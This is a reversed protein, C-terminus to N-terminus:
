KDRYVLKGALRRLLEGEPGFKNVCSLAERYLDEARKEAGEVGALLPYTAKGRVQDAGTSKGLQAADGRLDLLDDTIQFALGLARAYESLQEMRTSDAGGVIGGMRVAARLLAATKGKYMAEIEELSLQRGEAAMDLIQGSIMGETGAAHSLESILFIAHQPRDSNEGWAAILEFALTLLADGTLIATAEDFKRHCTPRGRRYDDDDMAPLDDHVLSYTHVLELACAIDTLEDERSGLMNATAKFLVPRLRKGGAMVTYEMADHIIQPHRRRIQWLERFRNDVQEKTDKIFKEPEPNSSMQPM